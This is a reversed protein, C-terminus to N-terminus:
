LTLLSQVPPGGVKQRTCKKEAFKQLRRELDNVVRESLQESCNQMHQRPIHRRPHARTGQAQRIHRASTGATATATIM